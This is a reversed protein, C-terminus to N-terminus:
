RNTAAPAANLRKELEQVRQELERIRAMLMQKEGQWSNWGTAALYSNARLIGPESAPTTGVSIYAPTRPYGSGFYAPGLMANNLPRLYLTSATDNGYTGSMPTGYVVVQQAYAATVLALALSAVGLSVNRIRNRSM